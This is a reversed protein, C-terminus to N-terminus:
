WTAGPHARALEQMPALLAALHPTHRGERGRHDAGASAPALTPAPVTAETLDAALQARVGDAYGPTAPAFTPVRDAGPLPALLEDLHPWEADVAARTRRHSEPTGDGLRLVWTRAHDRHYAAEHVAKAAVGALVPDDSARLDAYRQLQATALLLLRVMAVAFDGDDPREVLLANRFDAPDRRMALADEDRGRGELEGARALLARAVGLQDLAVNAIAVDEEIAPAAAVWGSLVQSTVLADDALALLCSVRPDAGDPEPSM